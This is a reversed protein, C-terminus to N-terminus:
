TPPGITAPNIGWQKAKTLPVQTMNPAFEQHAMKDETCQVNLQHNLCSDLWSYCDRITLIFKAEPFGDLLTEVFFRLLNCSELELGLHQDRKTLLEKLQTKDLAGKQTALLFQIFEYHEPGLPGIGTFSDWFNTFDLM